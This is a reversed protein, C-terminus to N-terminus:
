QMTGYQGVQGSSKTKMAEQTAWDLDEIFQEIVHDHIANVTCHLSDPPTQRDVYWGKEWLLDAIAFVNLQEENRAGFSLL